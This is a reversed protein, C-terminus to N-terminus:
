HCINIRDSKTLNEEKTLIQLNQYNFCLKQHYSCKLNFVSCPIVHDIHYKNRDYTNIDFEQYNNNIATQQLHNKLEKLSCGILEKTHLSYSIGDMAKKMRKRLNVLLRFDHDNKWRDLYRKTNKKILIDKNNKYYIQKRKKLLSKNNDRFVKTQKSIFDKNETHYKKQYLKYQKSNSQFSSRCSKCTYYLGDKSKSLKHFLTTDKEQKCKSCRKLM